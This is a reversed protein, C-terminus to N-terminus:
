KKLSQKSSYPFGYSRVRLLGYVNARTNNNNIRIHVLGGGIEAISRKYFFTLRLYGGGIFKLSLDFIINKLYILESSKVRDITFESFLFLDSV